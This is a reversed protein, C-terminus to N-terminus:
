TKNKPHKVDIQSKFPGTRQIKESSERTGQWIRMTLKNTNHEM